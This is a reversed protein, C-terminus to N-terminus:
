VTRLHEANPEELSTNFHKDIADKLWAQHQEDGHKISGFLTLVTEKLLTERKKSENLLFQSLRYAARETEVEDVIGIAKLVEQYKEEVLAEHQDTKYTPMLWEFYRSAQEKEVHVTGGKAKDSWMNPFAYWHEILQLKAKLQIEHHLVELM